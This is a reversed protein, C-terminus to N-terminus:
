KNGLVLSKYEDMDDKVRIHVLENKLEVIRKKLNYERGLVKSQLSKSGTVEKLLSDNDRRLRANEYILSVRDRRLRNGEHM